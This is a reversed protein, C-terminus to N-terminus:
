EGYCQFWKGEFTQCSACFTALFFDFEPKKNGYWLGCFVINKLAYRLAIPLEVVFATIPWMQVNKSRIPPAGDIFWVM